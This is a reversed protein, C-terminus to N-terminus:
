HCKRKKGIKQKYAYITGLYTWKLLEYRRHKYTSSDIIIKNINNTLISRNGKYVRKITIFYD